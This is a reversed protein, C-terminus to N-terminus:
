DRIDLMPSSRMGELHAVEEYAQRLALKASDAQRQRQRLALEARRADIRAHEYAVKTREAFDRADAAERDAQDLTAKAGAVSNRAQNLRDHALRLLREPSLRDAAQGALRPEAEDPPILRVTGHSTLQATM